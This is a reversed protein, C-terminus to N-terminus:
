KKNIYNCMKRIARNRTDYVYKKNQGIIKAIITLKNKYGEKILDIVENEKDNLVKQANDIIYLTNAVSILQQQTEYIKLAHREVKSSLKGKDGGTNHGYAATIKTNYELLSVIKEQLKRFKKQNSQYDELIKRIDEEKM